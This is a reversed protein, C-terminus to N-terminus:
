STSHRMFGLVGSGVSDGDGSAGGAEAQREHVLQASATGPDGENRAGALTDVLNGAVM